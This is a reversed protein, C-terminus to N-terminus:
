YIAPRKHADHIHNNYTKKHKVFSVVSLYLWSYSQAQSTDTLWFARKAIVQLIQPLFFSTWCQRHSMKPSHFPIITSEQWSLETCDKPSRYNPLVKRRDTLKAKYTTNGTQHGPRAPNLCCLWEQLLCMGITRRDRNWHNCHSPQHFM